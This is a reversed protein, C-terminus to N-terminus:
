WLWLQNADATPTPGDPLTVATTNTCGAADTVTLQYLGASLDELLPSTDGTNWHFSFGGNGGAASATIHGDSIGQCSPTVTPTTITIPPPASIPILGKQM